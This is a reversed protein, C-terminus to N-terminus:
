TCGGLGRGSVGSFGSVSQLCSQAQLGSGPVERWDGGRPNDEGEGQATPAHASSALLPTCQSAALSQDHPPWPAPCPAWSMGAVGMVKVDGPVGQWLRSVAQYSRGQM